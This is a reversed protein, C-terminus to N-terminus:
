KWLKNEIYEFKERVPIIFPSINLEELIDLYKKIKYRSFKLSGDENCIKTASTYGYCSIYNLFDLIGKKDKNNIKKNTNLILEIRKIKFHNGKNFIPRVDNNMYEKFINDCLYSKLDRNRNEKKKKWALHKPFLRIELRLVNKEYEELSKNKDNREKEKDYLIVSISKNSFYITSNYKSNKEKFKSKDRAKKYIKLLVKRKEEDEIKIDKRFDIRKLILELNKLNEGFISLLIYNLRREIETYDNECIEPKGLLKIFDVFLNFKWIGYSKYFYFNVADFIKLDIEENILKINTKFKDELYGIIEKDILAYFECTHIM